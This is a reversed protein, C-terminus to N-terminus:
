FEGSNVADLIIDTTPMPRSVLSVFGGAKQLQRAAALCGNKKLSYNL